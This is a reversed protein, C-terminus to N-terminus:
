RSNTSKPLKARRNLAHPADVIRVLTATAAIIGLIGVLLEILLIGDLNRIASHWVLAIAGVATLWFFWARPSLIREFFTKREEQFLRQATEMAETEIEVKSRSDVV